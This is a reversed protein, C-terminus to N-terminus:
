EILNTPLAQIYQPKVLVVRAKHSVDAEPYVLKSQDWLKSYFAKPSDNGSTLFLYTQRAIKQSPRVEKGIGKVQDDFSIDENEDLLREYEELAKGVLKTSLMVIKTQESWNNATACHAFYNLWNDWSTEQPQFDRPTFAKRFEKRNQVAPPQTPQQTGNTSTSAEEQFM